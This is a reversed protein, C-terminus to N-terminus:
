HAPSPAGDAVGRSGSLMLAAVVLCLAAIIGFPV